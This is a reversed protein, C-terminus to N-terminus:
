EQDGGYYKENNASAINEVIQNNEIEQNEQNNRNLGVVVGCIIGICFVIGIIKNKM